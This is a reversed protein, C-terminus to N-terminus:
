VKCRKKQQESPAGELLAGRKKKRRLVFVILGGIAAMGGMAYYASGQYAQYLHGSALSALGMAGGMVVGSYLSQATASLSPDIRSQIFHMAGLHTAGFTLAHLTQLGILPGITIAMGTLPWRILGAIGALAILRAPGIRAIVKSSFAFLVIEALVGIAWLFGIWDESIGNNKWHISGFGYYVAHSSQILATGFLFVLFRTDKMVLLLTLNRGESKPPRLDPLTWATVVTLALTVAISLYILDTSRDKLLYGVGIAACMFTVSGWLRIRGYDYGFTTIGHMALSEMLPMTPSWLALFLLHLALITVFTETFPFLVFACFSLGTLTLILARRQGLRDAFHAIFPNAILKSAIGAALITGIDAANLGRSELWIPWFVLHIGLMMFSAGYYVALRTPMTM